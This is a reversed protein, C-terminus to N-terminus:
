LNNEARFHAFGRNTLETLEALLSEDVKRFNFCSKGQMRKKLNDSIGELLQPKIYVPMLYFSVYQRRKHVGAFAGIKSGQPADLYYCDPQDLTVVLPGKYSQLLHKLRDFVPQFDAKEAM